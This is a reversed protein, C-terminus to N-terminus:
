NSYQYRKIMEQYEKTQKLENMQKETNYRTIKEYTEPDTQYCYYKNPPYKQNSNYYENDGYQYAGSDEDGSSFYWIAFGILILSFSIKPFFLETPDRTIVEFLCIPLLGILILSFILNIFTEQCSSM